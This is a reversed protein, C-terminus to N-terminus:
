TINSGLCCWVEHEQCHGQWEQHLSEDRCHCWCGNERWFTLETLIWTIRWARKEGTVFAQLPLHMRVRSQLFSFDAAREKRNTTDVLSFVFQVGAYDMSLTVSGANVVISAEQFRRTFMILQDQPSNVKLTSQSILFTITNKVQSGIAPVDVLVPYLSM